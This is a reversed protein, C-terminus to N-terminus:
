RRTWWCQIGCGNIGSNRITWPESGAVTGRSRGCMKCHLVGSWAAFAKPGLQASAKIMTTCEPNCPEAVHTVDYSPRPHPLQSACCQSSTSTSTLNQQHRLRFSVTVHLGIGSMAREFRVLDDREHLENPEHWYYYLTTVCLERLRAEKWSREGGLEWRQIWEGMWRSEWRCRGGACWETATGCVGDGCREAARNRGAACVLERRVAADLDVEQRRWVRALDQVPVRVRACRRPRQSPHARLWPLGHRLDHRADGPTAM